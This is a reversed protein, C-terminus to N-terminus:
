KDETRKAQIEGALIQRQTHMKKLRSIPYIRVLKNKYTLRGESDKALHQAVEDIALDAYLGAFTEPDVGRGSELDDVADLGGALTAYVNLGKTAPNYLSENKLGEVAVKLADNAIQIKRAVEESPGTVPDQARLTSQRDTDLRGVGYGVAFVLLALSLRITWRMAFDKPPREGSLVGRRRLFL